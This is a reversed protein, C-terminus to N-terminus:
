PLACAKYILLQGLPASHVFPHAACKPNSPWHGTVVDGGVKRAVMLLM